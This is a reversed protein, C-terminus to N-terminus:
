DKISTLVFDMGDVMDGDILVEILASQAPPDSQYDLSELQGEDIKVSYVGPKLGLYSFYGDSESLTEAVKEGEMNYIQVTIRGLGKLGEEFSKYVMGNVEGVVIIPVLVKKYQNPDVLVQYTKHQFRYAINDLDNDSFEINYSVFANLDSIRVISDKESIIARGGSIRITSLMVMKEDQDFIGNQNLDLFPYFLLGGKGVSSNNGTKISRNDGGFAMSGQASESFHVQKNNFSASFSTRAFPLDYKFSLYFNDSQSLVNREYSASLYIKSVRKEIEARLRVFSADTLNYQASPRFALGKKTKYSLSLDTTAYASREGVWNMQSSSNASFQKYYASFTFDVQNYNFSKYIFQNFNFKAYGSISNKKFPVSIRVKREELANFNTAVQGEVYKSYDIELFASKTIYYNLLAKMRVDHAYEINVVLKSFPQFAIRAFPIFPNNPISSLYEVGGGVTLFRNVGYNFNGQGFRTQEGNELVGATLGYEFTNAAMFTFPVNLTREETREEGLPGYFKLKLITYGYVIPVKFVFLGSADATTYDVLVDNIYLEVTWNPETHETIDYFGSAKRVTTPTNKITAGIVPANIFAITQNYIKGLQAQRILTKDNDVWRWMYQLQRNDFKHRDNYNVSINAEGYLLESGVGISINDSTPENQTQYSSAAWDIMGFKFLHYNRNITTDAGIPEGQLKSINDRMKEIRMKKILPLEFNSKLDIYLSRPKFTVTLGFAEKLLTSEIYVAGMEKILGQPSNMTLNGVTIQNKIYDIKYPKSENEIFGALNNGDNEVVCYISLHKFLDEVHVYVVDTNTVIIYTSFGITGNLYVEVPLEDYSFPANEKDGEFAYQASVENSSLVILCVFLMLYRCVALMRCDNFIRQYTKCYNM